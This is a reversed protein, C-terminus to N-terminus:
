WGGGGGGGGGGGSSGGGFGSSSGPPVSASAIATNFSKGFDAFSKGSDFSSGIFWVPSYAHGTQEKIQAFQATFNDAWKNEVGLSIAFPLFKEFTAPTMNPPNHFNMRDKETVEMFLKLGEIKDQLKRGETTRQNLLVSYIISIITALVLSVFLVLPSGNLFIFGLVLLIGSCLTGIVKYKTNKVFYKQGFKSEYHKNIETIAKTIKAHNKDDFEFTPENDTFLNQLIIKDEETQGTTKKEIFFKKEIETITIVGRRAADIMVSSLANRDFRMKTLYRIEGPTLNEPSDYEAVISGPKPDRGFRGWKSHFYWLTLLLIAIAFGTFVNERLISINRQLQTPASVIGKPWGLVITLGEGPALNQTSYVLSEQDIEINERDTSGVIGKYAEFKLESSPVQVPLSVKASAKEIPFSWGNGTVNWYLEDHNEFFGIQSKTSYQLTYQYNGPNLFVDSKGIYVRKGNSLNEIRYDEFKGNKQVGIIDFTVTRNQGFKDKYKTPFDRFIGRKIQDGSAYVSINETVLLEGTQKVEISSEFNLIRESEAQANSTAIVFFSTFIVVAISLLRILRTM